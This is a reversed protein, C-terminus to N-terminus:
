KKFSVQGGSTIPLRLLKYDAIVLQEPVIILRCDIDVIAPDVFLGM